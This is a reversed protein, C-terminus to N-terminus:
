CTGYIGQHAEASPCDESDDHDMPSVLEIRTVTEVPNDADGSHQVNALRPHVYPAADKAFTAAGTKDGKEWADRMAGLMVELPLIGESAARTVLAKAAETRKNPTGKKRGGTKKGAAM